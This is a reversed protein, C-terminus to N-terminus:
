TQALTAVREGPHVQLGGEQNSRASSLLTFLTTKEGDCGAFTRSSPCLDVSRHEVQGGRCLKTVQGRTVARSPETRRLM